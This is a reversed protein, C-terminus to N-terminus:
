KLKGEYEEMVVKLSKRMKDIAQAVEAIEDKGSTDIEVNMNGRAIEVAARKNAIARKSISYSIAFGFIVALLFSSIFLIYLITLTTRFVAENESVVGALANRSISLYTNITDSYVEKWGSYDTSDILALAEERKGDKVLGHATIEMAVLRINAEDQKEFLDKIIKDEAYTAANKITDDLKEGFSDYREKWFIDGTFIYNRTSQTLVEDLWVIDQAQEHIRQLNVLQQENEEVVTFSRITAIGMVLIAFVMVGFGLLLTTRIKLNKFM